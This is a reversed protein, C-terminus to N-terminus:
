RLTNALELMDQYSIVGIINGDEGKVACGGKKEDILMMYINSMKEDASCENNYIGLSDRSIESKKRDFIYDGANIVGLKDYFNGATKVLTEVFENKPHMIVQYPSDYQQLEGHDMLIVKNGLMLAERVDHTVFIITTETQQQLKLLEEQLTRRTIADLAGFPEDMLILEPRAALARAIGVRQQEGGSLKGPYREKYIDPDLKMMKLLEDVRKKILENDWKLLKPVTAINEGVTWHPFLGGQQIVYGIQKRYEEGNLLNISKGNFLIEGSTAEYIRNIMKLLTTKGSGSTGLITIFEGAYVSFSVNKVAYEKTGEFRKCINNINLICPKM